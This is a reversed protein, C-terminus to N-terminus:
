RFIQIKTSIYRTLNQVPRKPCKRQMYKIVETEGEIM